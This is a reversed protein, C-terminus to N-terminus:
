RPQANLGNIIPWVGVANEVFDLAIFNPWRNIAKKCRDIRDMIQVPNNLAAGVVPVYPQGIAWEYFHNITLLNVNPKNVNDTTESRIECGGFKALDYKTEIVYTWNNPRGDLGGGTFVVLRKNMDRMQQITPWPKTGKATWGDQDFVYNGIGADSFERDVMRQNEVYSEFFITVIANRNNDLFSKIDMLAESLAKPVHVPALLTRTLLCNTGGSKEHCLRARKEGSPVVVNAGDCVKDTVWEVVTVPTCVVNDVNRCVQEVVEVPTCVTKTVTKCLENVPWPAWECVKKSVEKCEQKVKTENHCDQKVITKCQQETKSVERKVDRCEKEVAGGQGQHIDLMLGRVGLKLQNSISLGQQAYLWGNETSAFANHATLFTVQDYRRKSDISDDITKGQGSATAAYGFLALYVPFLIARLKTKSLAQQCSTTGRESRRFVKRM